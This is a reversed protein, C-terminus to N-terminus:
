VGQSSYLKRFLSVPLRTLKILLIHIRNLVNEFIYIFSLSRWASEDLVPLGVLEKYSAKADPLLALNLTHIAHHWKSRTLPDLIVYLLNWASLARFSPKDTGMCARLRCAFYEANAIPTYGRARTTSPHCRFYNLENANFRVKGQACIRIWADWDGCFRMSENALGASIYAFKKFLVASANPIVNQRTMYIANFKEGDMSFSGVFGGPWLDDTYSAASGLDKGLEDISRSQSFALVAEHREIDNYLNEILRPDCTDDTEAIWILEHKALTVGTNWQVFPSGSNKTRIHYDVQGPFYLLLKKALFVSRDSSADDLFVIQDVPHTQTVVSHIREELFQSHNFCPLIATVKPKRLM